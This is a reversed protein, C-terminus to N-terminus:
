TSYNGNLDFSHRVALCIIDAARHTHGALQGSVVGGGGGWVGVGCVGERNHLGVSCTHHMQYPSKYSATRLAFASVVYCLLQLHPQRKQREMRLLRIRTWLRIKSMNKHEAFHTMFAALQENYDEGCLARYSHTFLVIHFLGGGSVKCRGTRTTKKRHSHRGARSRCKVVPLM